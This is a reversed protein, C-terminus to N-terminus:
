RDLNILITTDTTATTPLPQALKGVALLNQMEDYLGVTTVYPSFYSGTVYGYVTDDTSGSLLSPNLSFNFESERLTCKYQTEYITMSSSFSCTVNALTTINNLPLNQNTFIAMGHTYIINGVNQNALISGSTITASGSEFYLYIDSPFPTGQDQFTVSVQDSALKDATVSIGQSASINAVFSSAASNFFPSNSSGSAWSASVFTYGLPLTISSAFDIQGFNAISNASAVVVQSSIGVSQTWAFSASNYLNGEGDDYAKFSSSYDFVFSYPQIYEGFIKSPISVVALQSGTALPWYRSATLTSQLYNFYRGTSTKLGVFANGETDSGPILVPRALPDGYSQTLFNSYYLEKSSNFVLVQYQTSLTGTTTKNTQFSGSTGLFRDIGVLQGNSQSEFQSFPFTFGKNVEFPTVIIDSTLFQKYAIGM